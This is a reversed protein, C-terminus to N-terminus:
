FGGKLNILNSFHFKDELISIAKRSRIGTQCHVVVPKDRSIEDSREEIEDLPILDGELNSREYEYPERVDILQFSRGESQWVYLERLSIETKKQIGCFAEYDGLETVKEREAIKPVKVKYQHMTLADMVFLVGSLPEGIKCIVKLAENAQLCGIIGAMVGLVGATSCDPAMEPPPPTPFLDRYTSSGKHNFVAVQGEFRHIAAYIYPKDLIECADNVLYRTPFNDSGDIILDFGSFIDLANSNDLKEGFVKVNVLPNLESIRKRAEEAKPRGVSPEGYLIQRHLNNKEVVDFEVLGLTGVGAAALYLIVPSGLGGCGIVLVAAQKLKEQGKVGLEPLIIQRHYRQYEEQSLM